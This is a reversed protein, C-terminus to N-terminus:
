AMDAKNCSILVINRVPPNLKPNLSRFSTHANTAFARPKSCYKESGFVHLEGSSMAILDLIRVRSSPWVSNNASIRLSKLSRKVISEPPSASESAAVARCRDRFLIESIDLINSRM